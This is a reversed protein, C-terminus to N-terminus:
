ARCIVHQKRRQLSTSRRCAPYVHGPLSLEARVPPLTLGRGLDTATLTKHYIPTVSQLAERSAAFAVKPPITNM